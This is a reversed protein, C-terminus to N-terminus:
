IVAVLQNTAARRTPRHQDISRSTIEGGNKWKM